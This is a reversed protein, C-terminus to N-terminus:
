YLIEKAKVFVEESTILEMCEHNFGTLFKTRRNTSSIELPTFRCQAKECPSCPLDRRIVVDREGRPGYKKADTPGFIALIPIKLNVAIHMPASDNTVLLSSKRLLAILQRLSTKGVAVIPKTKMQDVMDEVLPRDNIDGIMIVKAGVEDQLRDGIKAFGVKSWRKVDSRAGPCIAVVTEFALIGWEKFLREIYNDDEASTWLEYPPNDVNIGLSSLKCLHSDLKHLINIPPKLFSSRYKTGMLLPFLSQRLDVVLDFKRGRLYKILKLKDRFRISKDYTIIETFKPNGEFVERARPGVMISLNADPFERKLVNVVPVTMICDGINSLTILLIKNIKSQNIM